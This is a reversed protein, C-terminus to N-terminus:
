DQSTITAASDIQQADTACIVRPNNNHVSSQAHSEYHSGDEQIDTSTQAQNRGKLNRGEQFRDATYTAPDYTHKRQGATVPTRTCGPHNHYPRNTHCSSPHRPPM